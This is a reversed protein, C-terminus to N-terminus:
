DWMAVDAISWFINPNAYVSFIFCVNPDYHGSVALQVTHKM